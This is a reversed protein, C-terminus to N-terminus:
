RVSIYLSCYAKGDKTFAPPVTSEYDETFARRLSGNKQDIWVAEWATQSCAGVDGSADKAEYKKYLGAKVKEEMEAFFEAPVTIITMDYLGREEEAYNSYRSVPVQGSLIVGDSDFLLPLKGSLIDQWFASIREIGEPSNDTRLTVAQLRYSM